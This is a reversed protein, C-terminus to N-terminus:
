MSYFYIAKNDGKENVKGVTKCVRVKFNDDIFFFIPNISLTILIRTARTITVKYKVLTIVPTSPMTSSIKAPTNMRVLKILKQGNYRGKPIFVAFFSYNKQRLALKEYNPQRVM